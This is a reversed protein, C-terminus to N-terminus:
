QPTIYFPKLTGIYNVWGEPQQLTTTSLFPFERGEEVFPDNVILSTATNTEADFGRIGTVVLAHGTIGDYNQVNLIIPHGAVLTDYFAQASIEISTTDFDYLDAGKPLNYFMSGKIYVDNPLQDIVNILDTDIGHFNFSMTLATPGCATWGIEDQRDEPLDEFQHTYPVRLQVATDTLTEHVTEVTEAHATDVALTPQTLTSLVAITGATLLDMPTALPTHRSQTGCYRHKEHPYLSAVLQVSVM